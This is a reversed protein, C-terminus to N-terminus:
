KSKRLIMEFEQGLSEGIPKRIYCTPVLAAGEPTSAEFLVSHKVARKFRMPVVIDVVNPNEQEM